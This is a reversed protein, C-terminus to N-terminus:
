SRITIPHCVGLIDDDYFIDSLNGVVPSLQLQRSEAIDYLNQHSSLSSSMDSQAYFQEPCSTPGRSDVLM